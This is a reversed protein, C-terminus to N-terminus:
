KLSEANCLPEQKSNWVFAKLVYDAGSMDPVSIETSLTESAVTEILTLDSVSCDIMSTKEVDNKYLAVMLQANADVKGANEANVSITVLGSKITNLAEGQKTFVIKGLEVVPESLNNLRETFAKKDAGDALREVAEEAAKVDAELRSREAKVLAKRAEGVATVPTLTLDDLYTYGTQNTTYGNIQYHIYTIEDVFGDPLILNEAMVVTNNDSLDILTLTYRDTVTNIQTVVKYWNERKFTTGSPVINSWKSDCLQSGNDPSKMHWLMYNGNVYLSVGGEPIDGDFRM